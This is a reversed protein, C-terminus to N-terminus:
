SVDHILLGHAANPQLAVYFINHTKSHSFCPLKHDLEWQHLLAFVNM